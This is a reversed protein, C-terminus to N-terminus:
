ENNLPCKFILVYMVVTWLVFKVANHLQSYNNIIYHTLSEYQFPYIQIVACRILKTAM